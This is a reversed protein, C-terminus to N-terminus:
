INGITRAFSTHSLIEGHRPWGGDIALRNEDGAPRPEDAGAHSAKKRSGGGAGVDDGHVVEAAPAGLEVERCQGGVTDREHVTVDPHGVIKWLRRRGEREDDVTRGVRGYVCAGAAPRPEDDVRVQDARHVAELHRLSTTGIHHEQRGAPDIGDPREILDRHFLRRGSERERRRLRQRPDRLVAHGLLEFEAANAGEVAARLEGRLDQDGLVRRHM